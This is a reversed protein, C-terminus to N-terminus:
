KSNNQKMFWIYLVLWSLIGLIILAIEYVDPCRSILVGLLAFYTSLTWLILATKKRSTGIRILRHSLHDQGGQFPSINRKLRSSVAVSTDLIPIGMLFIPTLYSGMQTNTNPHLRLTLIALLVGLFLAGADGM